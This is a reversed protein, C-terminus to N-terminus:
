AVDARSASLAVDALMHCDAPFLVLLTRAAVTARSSPPTQRCLVVMAKQLFFSLQFIVGRQFFQQQQDLIREGLPRSPLGKQRSLNEVAPQTTNKKTIANRM